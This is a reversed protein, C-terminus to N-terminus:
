IQVIDSDKFVVLVRERIEHHVWRRFASSKQPERVGLLHLHLNCLRGRKKVVTEQRLGLYSLGLLGRHGAGDPPGRRGVYMGRHREGADGKGSAGLVM